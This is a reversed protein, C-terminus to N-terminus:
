NFEELVINSYKGLNNNLVYHLIFFYKIDDVKLM